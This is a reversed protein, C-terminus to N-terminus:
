CCALCSPQLSEPISHIGFNESLLSLLWICPEPPFVSPHVKYWDLDAKINSLSLATARRQGLAAVAYNGRLCVNKNAARLTGFPLNTPIHWAHATTALLVLVTALFRMRQSMWPMLWPTCADIIWVCKHLVLNKETSNNSLIYCAALNQDHRAIMCPSLVTGPLGCHGGGWSLNLSKGLNQTSQSLKRFSKERRCGTTGSPVRIWSTNWQSLAGRSSWLGSCITHAWASFLLWIKSTLLRGVAKLLMIKGWEQNKFIVYM